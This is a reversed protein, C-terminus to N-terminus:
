LPLSSPMIRSHITSGRQGATGKGPSTNACGHSQCQSSDLSKKQNRLRETEGMLKLILSASYANLSVQNDKLATVM